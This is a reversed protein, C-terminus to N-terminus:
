RVERDGPLRDSYAQCPCGEKLGKQKRKHKALSGLPNDAKSASGTASGATVVCCRLTALMVSLARHEVQISLPGATM